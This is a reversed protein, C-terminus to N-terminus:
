KATIITSIRLSWCVNLDMKVKRTMAINKSNSSLRIVLMPNANHNCNLSIMTGNGIPQPTRTLSRKQSSKKLTVVIRTPVSGFVTRAESLLSAVPQQCAPEPSSWFRKRALCSNLQRKCQCRNPSTKTPSQKSALCAM